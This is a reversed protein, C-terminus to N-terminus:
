HARSPVGVTVQRALLCVMAAPRLCVRHPQPLATIMICDNKRPMDTSIHATDGSPQICEQSSTFIMDHINHQLLM